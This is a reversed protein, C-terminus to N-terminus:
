EDEEPEVDDEDSAYPEGTVDHYLKMLRPTLRWRPRGRLSSTLKNAFVEVAGIRKLFRLLVKEAEEKQNTFLALARSDMGKEGMRYLNKLIELTRGEATDMAVKAVKQMIEDDVIRKNHVVTLCMALRGIQQVLRSGFEREAVEEQKGSPRARVYAVFKGYNVCLQKASDPFEVKDLLKQANLRLYDVYGGTLQMAQLMDKEYHSELKGNAELKMTRETRNIVRWLVENEMEDDIDKMIICTLFREGLESVDIQRLSSTGCLIWTIRIGEYDRQLKHRYHTRSVSDYLDRAESLIQPLNPSQLLTDGDKLVFTKDKLQHILSHDATGDKDSKYGSHFGRFTSKAVVFRRNLSLAECLTSKGSAPPGVIKVWLQDGLSKTSLVASLMVGLACELGDTWKMAKMWSNRLVSWQKCPICAIEPRGPKGGKGAAAPDIWAPPIPEVKELLKQLRITREQVDKGHEKLWDRVDYGSELEPDYGAVKGWCLHKIEKPKDEGMVAFLQSIRKMGAQGAPEIDAGTEPHKRPWDNDFALVVRKKEFLPCWVEPFVNCGPVAVINTKARISNGPEPTQVISGDNRKRTLGMIEWLSMADFVGECIWVDPKKPDWLHVGYMQHGLTPTAMLRMKGTERDKLYRYLQCIAGRPNYGPVLWDGTGISKCVEWHKLTEPDLLGRDRALASYDTKRNLSVEHLRQLFTYANGGGKESGSICVFCRWKGTEVDISFKGERGCFPCDGLAEKAHQKYDVNVGHFQYVRITDPTELKKGVVPM